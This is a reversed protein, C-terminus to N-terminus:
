KDWNGTNVEHAVQNWHALKNDEITGIAMIQVEKREGNHATLDVKYHLAIQNGSSLPEELPKSIEFRAYKQKFKLLRNLYDASSKGVTRGNSTILFNKALHVEIDSLKPPAPQTLLKQFQKFFDYIVKLAQTKDVSLTKTGVM